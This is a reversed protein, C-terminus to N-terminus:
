KKQWPRSGTAAPKPQEPQKPPTSAQAKGAPPAPADDEPMGEYLYKTIVNKTVDKSHKKSFYTESSVRAYFPRFHFQETDELTSFDLGTALALAKLQGQAIAQSQASEHQINNIGSFFWVGKHPGSVVQVKGNFNQGKGTGSPKVDSETFELEYDDDPLITIGGGGATNNNVEVDHDIHGIAAM